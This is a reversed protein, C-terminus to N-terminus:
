IKPIEIQWLDQTEKYEKPKPEEKIIEKKNSEITEYNQQQKFNVYLNKIKYYSFNLVCFIILTIVFSIVLVCKKTYDILYM